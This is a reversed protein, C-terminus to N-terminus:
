PVAPYGSSSSSLSLGKLSQRVEETTQFRKDPDKELCRFIIFSVSWPIKLQPVSDDFEPAKENVHKNMTELITDAVFPPIGSLTEYMLCGLSYIDSRVDLQKGMCQEPSLVAPTGCVEGSATLEPSNKNFQPMLKAVGFDLLKAKETGDEGPYVLINSPKLDRHLIGRNHAHGLGECLQV